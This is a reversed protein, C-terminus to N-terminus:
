TVERSDRALITPIEAGSAFNARLLHWDEHGSDKRVRLIGNTPVRYVWEGGKLNIPPAKKDPVIKILGTLEDPIVLRVPRGSSRSCAPGWFACVLVLLIGSYANM